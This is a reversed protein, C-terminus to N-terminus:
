TLIEDHGNRLGRIEGNERATENGNVGDLGGGIGHRATGLNDAGNSGSTPVHVLQLDEDLLTHIDGTQVKRMSYTSLKYATYENLLKTETATATVLGQTTQGYRNRGRRWLIMGTMSSNQLTDAFRGVIQITVNTRPREREGTNM